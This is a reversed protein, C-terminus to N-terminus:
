RALATRVRSGGGGRLLPKNGAALALTPSLVADIIHVVGNSAAVDATIVLGTHKAADTITVEGTQEDRRVDLTEGEATKM